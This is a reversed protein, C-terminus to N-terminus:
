FNFYVSFWSDNVDQRWKFTNATQIAIWIQNNIDWKVGGTFWTTIQDQEIYDIVDYGSSSNVYNWVLGLNLSFGKWVNANVWSLVQLETTDKVPWIINIKWNWSTYLSFTDDLNYVLHASGAIWLSLWSIEKYELDDYTVKDLWDHIADQVKKWWFNWYIQWYWWISASLQFKKDGVKYIQEMYWAELRDARQGSPTDFLSAFSPIKRLKSSFNDILQNKEEEGLGKATLVSYKLWFEKNENSEYRLELWWTEADDNLTQEIDRTPLDNTAIFTLKWVDNNGRYIDSVSPVSLGLAPLDPLDATKIFGRRAEQANQIINKNEEQHMGAYLKSIDPPTNEQTNQSNNNEIWSM